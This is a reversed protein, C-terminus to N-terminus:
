PRAGAIYAAFDTPAATSGSRVTAPGMRRFQRDCRDCLQGYGEISIEEGSARRAEMLERLVLLQAYGRIAAMTAVDLAAHGGREDTLATVLDAFRRGELTRNSDVKALHLRTGNTIAARRVAPAPKKAPVPVPTM